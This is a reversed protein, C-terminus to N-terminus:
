WEVDILNSSGARQARMCATGSNIAHVAKGMTKPDNDRIYVNSVVGSRTASSEVHTYAVGNSRLAAKISQTALTPTVPQQRSV